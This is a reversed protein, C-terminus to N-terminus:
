YDFIRIKFWVVPMEYLNGGSKSTLRGSRQIVCKKIFELPDDPILENLSM